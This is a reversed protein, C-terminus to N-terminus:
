AHPEHPCPARHDSHGARRIAFFQGPITAVLLLIDSGIVFATLGFHSAAKTIEVIL